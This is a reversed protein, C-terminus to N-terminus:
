KLVALVTRCLILVDTILSFDRISQLNYKMKEPLIEEVYVREADGAKDLLMAEDKYKISAESTIGAPLLLTACMEKTYEKVYKTVEPRAGVFSMNGTFVDILQPIEDIRLDRIKKGVKTVRADGSVTVAAGMKDAGNVMTRFKHIKFVKGYATVREQRYFVPGSSDVKISIAVILMPVAFLILLLGSVIVDFVRKVGLAYRKKILIDYYAKVEECRMFEPLEDWKLIGMFYYCGKKYLNVFWKM